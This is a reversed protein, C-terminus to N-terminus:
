TMGYIKMADDFDVIPHTEQEYYNFIPNSMLDKMWEEATDYDLIAFVYGSTPSIYTAVIKGEDKWKKNTKITADMLEKQKDPPLSLLSEKQKGISLIKM